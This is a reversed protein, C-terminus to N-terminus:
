LCVQLGRKYHQVTSEGITNALEREIPNINENRLMIDLNDLDHMMDMERFKSAREKQRRTSPM